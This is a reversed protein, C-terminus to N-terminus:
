KQHPLRRIVEESIIFTGPPTDILSPEALLIGVTGTAEAVQLTIDVAILEKSILV